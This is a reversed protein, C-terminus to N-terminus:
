KNLSLIIERFSYNSKCLVFFLIVLEGCIDQNYKQIPKDPYIGDYAQCNNINYGKAFRTIEKPVPAFFSDFYSVKTNNKYLGVWHGVENDRNSILILYYGDKIKMKNLEHIYYNGNYNPIELDKIMNELDM